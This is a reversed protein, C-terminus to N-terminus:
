RQWAPSPASGAMQKRLADSRGAERILPEARDLEGPEFGAGKLLDRALQAPDTPTSNASSPVPQRRGYKKEHYALEALRTQDGAIGGADTSSPFSVDPIPDTNRGVRRAAQQEAIMQGLESCLVAALEADTKCRDVLGESVFLQGTGRHFLLPEKVGLTHFLPDLGTFTNQAVIRRGMNEVREAVQLDPRPYKSPDPTKVRNDPEWGLTRSLSWERDLFNRDTCGTPGTVCALGAALGLAARRNM